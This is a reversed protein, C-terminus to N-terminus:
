SGNVADPFTHTINTKLYFMSSFKRWPSSFAIGLTLIAYKTTQSTSGTVVLLLQLTVPIAISAQSHSLLKVAFGWWIFLFDLVVPGCKKLWDRNSTPTQSPHPSHFLSFM